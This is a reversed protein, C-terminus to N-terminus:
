PAARTPNICVLHREHAHRHILGSAEAYALSQAAMDIVPGCHERPDLMPRTDYWRGPLAIHVRVAETEIDSIVAANAIALGQQLLSADAPTFQRDQTV